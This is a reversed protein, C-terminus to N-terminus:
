GTDDGNRRFEWVMLFETRDVCRELDAGCQYALDIADNDPANDDIYTLIEAPYWYGADDGFCTVIRREQSYVDHYLAIHTGRAARQQQDLIVATPLLTEPLHFGPIHGTMANM